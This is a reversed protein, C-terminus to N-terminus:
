AQLFSVLRFPRQRANKQNLLSFSDASGNQAAAVAAAVERIRLEINAAIPVACEHRLGKAKKAAARDAGNGIPKFLQAEYPRFSGFAAPQQVGKRVFSRRHQFHKRRRAM